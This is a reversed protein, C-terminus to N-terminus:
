KNKYANESILEGLENKIKDAEEKSLSQFEHKTVGTSIVINSLNYKKQLINQTIIIYRIHSLSVYSKKSYFRKDFFVLYNGEEEYYIYNYKLRILSIVVNFIYLIVFISVITTYAKISIYNPVVFFFLIIACITEMALILLATFLRYRYTLKNAKTIKNIQKTINDM